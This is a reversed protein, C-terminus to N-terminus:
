VELLVNSYHLVKPMVGQMMYDTETVVPTIALRISVGMQSLTQPDQKFNVDRNVMQAPNFRSNSGIAPYDLSFLSPQVLMLVGIRTAEQWIEALDTWAEHRSVGPAFLCELYAWMEHVQRATLRDIHQKWGDAEIIEKCLDVSAIILARRVHIPMINHFQSRLKSIQEDYYQTFGKAIVPRFALTTIQHNIVKAVALYRTSGSSMLRKAIAPNTYQLICDKLKSPLANDNKPDPANAYNRAWTETLKFIRTFESGFEISSQLAQMQVLQNGGPAYQSSNQPVLSRQSPRPRLALDMQTSASQQRAMPAASPPPGSPQRAMATPPPFQSGPQRSMPTAPPFQGSSQHTMPAAPPPPGAPHPPPLNEPGPNYAPPPQAYINAPAGQNAGGRHPTTAPKNASARQQIQDSQVKITVKQKSIQEELKKMANAQEDIKKSSSALEKSLKAKEAQLKGLQCNLENIEGQAAQHARELVDKEAQM